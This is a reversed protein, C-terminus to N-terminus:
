DLLVVPGRAQKISVTNYHSGHKTGQVLITNITVFSLGATAGNPGDTKPSGSNIVASSLQDPTTSIRLEM